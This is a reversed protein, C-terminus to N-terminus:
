DSEVEEYFSDPYCDRDEDTNGHSIHDCLIEADYPTFEALGVINKVKLMLSSHNFEYEHEALIQLFPKLRKVKRPKYIFLRASGEYARGEKTHHSSQGNKWVVLVERNKSMPEPIEIITHIDIENVTAYIHQIEKPDCELLSDVYKKSM